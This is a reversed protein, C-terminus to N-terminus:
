LALPAPLLAILLAGALGDAGEGPLDLRKEGLGSFCAAGELVRDGAKGVGGFPRHGAEGGAGVGKVDGGRVECLGPLADGLRHAGGPIGDLADTGRRFREGPRRARGLVDNGVIAAGPVGEGGHHIIQLPDRFVRSPVRGRVESIM